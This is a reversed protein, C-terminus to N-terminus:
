GVIGVRAISQIFYRQLALYMLLIPLIFMLCAAMVVGSVVATHTKVGSLELITYLQSLRPALTFDSSFYMISLYYENWHWIISFITVTLIVIGSSPIVIKFFTKLAGAGDIAAAEELEKPLGRFFQMYIFILLGSRIGVSFISPLIFTYPTNILNPNLNNNFLNGLLGLLGLIDFERFNMYSPIVTMQPPVIITLILIILLISKFRFKFRAFGYATIACTLIQILASVINIRLTKLLAHGFDMVRWAEGFNDFSISKPVWVVSPDLLQDHTKLSTSIMSFLPFLIIYGVSFILLLRCVTICTPIVKKGVKTNKWRTLTTESNQSSYM